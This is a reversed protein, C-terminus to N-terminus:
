RAGALALIAIPALLMWQPLRLLRHPGPLATAIVMFVITYAGFHAATLLAISATGEPEVVAAAVSTLAALVLDVSVWHWVAHLTRKPVEPMASDLLPRVPDFHGAVIHIGAVVAAATGAGLLWGNM